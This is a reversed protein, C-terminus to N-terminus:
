KDCNERPDYKTARKTRVANRDLEFRLEFKYIEFILFLLRACRRKKKKQNEFRLNRDTVASKFARFVFIIVLMNAIVTRFIAYSIHTM